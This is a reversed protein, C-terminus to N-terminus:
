KRGLNVNWPAPWGIIALNHNPILFAIRKTAAVIKGFDLTGIQDLYKKRDYKDNKRLVFIFARNLGKIFQTIKHRPVQTIPSAWIFIYKSYHEHICPYPFRVQWVLKSIIWYIPVICIEVVLLCWQYTTTARNTSCNSRIGSTWQEIGTM